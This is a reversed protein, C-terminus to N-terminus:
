QIQSGLIYLYAWRGPLLQQAARRQETSTVMGQLPKGLLEYLQAVSLLRLEPCGWTQAVWNGCSARSLPRSDIWRKLCNTGQFRQRHPHQRQRWRDM